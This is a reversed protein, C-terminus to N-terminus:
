LRKRKNQRRKNDMFRKDVHNKVQTGVQSLTVYNDSLQLAESINVRFTKIVYEIENIAGFPKLLTKGLAGYLATDADTTLANFRAIYEKRKTSWSIVQAFFFRGM